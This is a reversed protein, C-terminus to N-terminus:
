RRTQLSLSAKSGSGTLEHRDTYIHEIRGTNFSSSRRIISGSTLGILGIVSWRDLLEGTFRTARTWSFSPSTRATFITLIEREPSYKHRKSVWGTRHYRSHSSYSEAHYLASRGGPPLEGSILAVKRKRYEEVDGYRSTSKIRNATESSM